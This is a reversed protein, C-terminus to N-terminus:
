FLCLKYTLGLHRLTKLYVVNALAALCYLDSSRPAASGCGYTYKRLYGSGEERLHGVRLFRAVDTVRFGLM